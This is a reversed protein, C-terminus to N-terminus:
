FRQKLINKRLESFKNKKAKKPLNGLRGKDVLIQFTFSDKEVKEVKFKGEFPNKDKM